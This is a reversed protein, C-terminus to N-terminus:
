LFIVVVLDLCVLEKWIDGLIDKCLNNLVSADSATQQSWDKAREPRHNFWGTQIWEISYHM